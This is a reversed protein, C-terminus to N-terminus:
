FNVSLWVFKWARLWGAISPLLRMEPLATHECKQLM